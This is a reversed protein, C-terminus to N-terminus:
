RRLRRRRARVDRDYVEHAEMASSRTGAEAMAVDWWAGVPLAGSVTDAM